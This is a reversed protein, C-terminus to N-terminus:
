CSATEAPISLQPGFTSKLSGRLPGPVFLGCWQDMPVFPADLVCESVSAAILPPLMKMGYKLAADNLKKILEETVPPPAAKCDKVDPFVEQLFKEVGAPSFTVFQVAVGKGINKFRHIM